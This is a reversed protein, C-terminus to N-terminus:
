AGLYAQKVLPSKLLDSGKGGLTIRGNELVYAYDSLQLSRFADQEVILVTLGKESRLREIARFINESLLPSIGASPEDLMLLKPSAMIGRGIALMQAEGGSLTGALQKERAELAPFLSYVEKLNAEHHSRAHKTFSGLQLNESVTMEPFLGRGEPVYVVGSEVIKEVPIDRIVTGGFTISGSTPVILGAITKLLTTKGAGNSGILSVISAAAVDFDLNWLVQIDGYGACLEKVQLINSNQILRV